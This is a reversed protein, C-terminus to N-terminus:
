SASWVERQPEYPLMHAVPAPAGTPAADWTMRLAINRRLSADRMERQWEDTEMKHEVRGAVAQEAAVASQRMQTLRAQRRAAQASKWAAYERDVRQIYAVKASLLHTRSMATPAAAAAAQELAADVRALWAVNRAFAAENDQQLSLATRAASVQAAHQMSAHREARVELAAVYADYSSPAGVGLLAAM